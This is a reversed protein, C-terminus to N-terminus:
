SKFENADMARRDSDKGNNGGNNGIEFMNESKTRRLTYRTQNDLDSEFHTRFGSSGTILYGPKYFTPEYHPHKYSKDGLSPMNIHNRRSEVSKITRKRGFNQRLDLESDFANRKNLNQM